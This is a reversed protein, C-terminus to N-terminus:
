NTQLKTKGENSILIYEKKYFTVYNLLVYMTIFIAFYRIFESYINLYYTEYNLSFFFQRTKLAAVASIIFPFTFASYSPVFGNKMM